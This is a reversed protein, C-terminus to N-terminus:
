GPESPAIPAAAIAGDSQDTAPDFESLGLTATSILHRANVRSAYASDVRGIALARKLADVDAVRTVRAIDSPGGLLAALDQEAPSGAVVGIVDGFALTSLDATRVVLIFSPDGARAIPDDASEGPEIAHSASAMAAVVLGAASRAVFDVFRRAVVSGEFRLM